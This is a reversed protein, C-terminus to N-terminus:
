NASFLTVYDIIKFNISDRKDIDRRTWSGGVWWKLKRPNKNIPINTSCYLTPSNYTITKNM